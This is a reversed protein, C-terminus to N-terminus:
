AEDGVTEALGPGHPSNDNSGERLIREEDSDFSTFHRDM